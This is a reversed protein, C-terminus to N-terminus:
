IVVLWDVAFTIKLINKDMRIPKETCILCIFKQKVFIKLNQYVVNIVYYRSYKSIELSMNKFSSSVSTM